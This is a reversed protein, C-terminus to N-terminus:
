SIILKEKKGRLVCLDWICYFRSLVDKKKQCNTKSSCPHVPVDRFWRALRKTASRQNKSIASLVDDLMWKEFSRLGTDHNPISQSMEVKASEHTTKLLFTKLPYMMQDLRLDWLPGCAIAAISSILCEAMPLHPAQVLKANRLSHSQDQVTWDPWVRMCRSVWIGKRWKANADHALRFLRSFFASM